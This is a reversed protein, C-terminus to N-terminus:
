KRAPAQVAGEVSGFAIRAGAELQMNQGPAISREGGAIIAKWEGQSLNKLGLVEPHSPHSTVEAVIGTIEAASLIVGYKLDLGQGGVELCGGNTRGRAAPIETITGEAHAFDVGTGAVLQISRGPPVAHRAGHALTATWDGTTLNRLGM